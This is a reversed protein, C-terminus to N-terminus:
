WRRRSTSRASSTRAARTTSAPRAASRPTSRRSCRPRCRCSASAAFGAMDGVVGGGLAVVLDDRAFRNAVLADIIRSVTDLTKHREGDPLVIELLPATAGAGAGRAATWAAQLRPAHLPGVIDNTVVAVKRSGRPGGLLPGLLAADDFLGDGVFIPYSRDGLGVTLAPTAPNV